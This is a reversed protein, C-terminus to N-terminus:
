IKYHGIQQGALSRTQKEALLQAAAGAVPEEIFDGAQDYYGLLSEVERRVEEDGGCAGDLFAARAAPERGLAAHFLEDIHQKREPEM